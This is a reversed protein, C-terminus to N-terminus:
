YRTNNAKVLRKVADYRTNVRDWDLNHWFAEIYKEKGMIGYDPIYVHPHLSLCMLPHVNAFRMNNTRGPRTSLSSSAYDFKPNDKDEWAAKAMTSARRPTDITSQQTHAPPTDTRRSQQPRGAASSSEAGSGSPDALDEVPAMKAASSQSRSAAQPSLSEAIDAGSADVAVFPELEPARNMQGQVLITGAGYTGLVALNDEEDMVLWVYGTGFMGNAYSSFYNIFSTM